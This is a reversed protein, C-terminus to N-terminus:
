DEEKEIYKQYRQNQTKLVLNLYYDPYEQRYAVTITFKSDKSLYKRHSSKTHNKILKFGLQKLKKDLERFKM